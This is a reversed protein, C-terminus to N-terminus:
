HSLPLNRIDTSPARQIEFRYPIERSKMYKPLNSANGFLTAAATDDLGRSLFELVDISLGSQHASVLLKDLLLDNM